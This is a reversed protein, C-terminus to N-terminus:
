SLFVLLFSFMIKTCKKTQKIIKNEEKKKGKDNDNTYVHHIYNEKSNM